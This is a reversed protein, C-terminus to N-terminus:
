AHNLGYRNIIERLQSSAAEMARAQANDFTSLVTQLLRVVADVQMTDVAPAPAPAPAPQAQTTLYTLTDHLRANDKSLTACHDQLHAIIFMMAEMNLMGNAKLDELRAQLALAQDLQDVGYTLPKAVAEIAPLHSLYQKHKEAREQCLKCM